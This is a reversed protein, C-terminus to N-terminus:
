EDERAGESGGERGERSVWTAGKHSLAALFNTPMMTM